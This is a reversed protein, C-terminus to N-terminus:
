GSERKGEWRLSFDEQDGNLYEIMSDMIKNIVLLALLNGTNTFIGELFGAESMFTYYGKVSSKLNIEKAGPV